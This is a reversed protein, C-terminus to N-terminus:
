FFCDMTVQNQIYEHANINEVVGYTTILTTFLSKKCNTAARFIEKRKNLEEGYKKTVEFKDNYYKCECLNICSDARDLILDIQAGAQTENGSIHWTHQTMLVGSLGLAAQIKDMHLLCINEFAYGCWTLWANTNSQQMWYNQMNASFFKEISEVWKLYFLSYQDILRYKAFKSNNPYSNLHMIFGSKELERLIKSATGGTPLGSQTLLDKRTLGYQNKALVRVIKIHQEYNNFLSSYLNNFENYLFGTPTFFQQDITQKTSKGPEVQLLYKPIGGMAMYLEIIQKQDLNVNKYNLFEQTESLTFPLLQMQRTLRGYLGGTNSIINDIMWSAASGCVVLMVNKMRSFYLNWFHDIAQLFNSKPSAIWPLEDFFLIVRKDTPLVKVQELLLDLADFWDAPASLEKNILFTTSLIRLFRKLQTKNVADKIGTFEFYAGKDKLYTSILYTKGVRRRGYIALFEAQGSKLATQLLSLEKKRGIISHHEV